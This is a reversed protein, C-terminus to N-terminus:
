LVPAYLSRYLALNRQITRVYDRTETFPIREIWLERDEGGFQARWQVVRNPGANYAALVSPLDDGHRRFTEGLYAIGLRLNVAPDYLSDPHWAKLALKRALSAGTPPMVQM